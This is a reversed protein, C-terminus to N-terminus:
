KWIYEDIENQQKNLTTSLFVGNDCLLIDLHLRKM